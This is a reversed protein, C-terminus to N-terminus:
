KRPHSKKYVDKLREISNHTYVATSALSSHGLLEKISNIDSGNNLLHTAFTHRLTHPNTKSVNAFGKLIEDLRRSIFVRYTPEGKDTVLVPLSRSCAFGSNIKLEAYNKLIELVRKGVPIFREKNGKGLVKIESRKADIDGHTLGILESVRVGTNYLLELIVRDRQSEFTPEFNEPAMVKAVVATEIFSALRKPQKPRSVEDLPNIDVINNKVGYNYYSSLAVLKRNVTSEALGQGLLSMIWTRVEAKRVSLMCDTDFQELLFEKFSALDSQYSIVTHDSYKKEKKLWDLFEVIWDL